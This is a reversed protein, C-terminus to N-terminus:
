AAVQGDQHVRGPGSKHRSETEYQDNEFRVRQDVRHGPASTRVTALLGNAQPKDQRYQGDPPCGTVAVHTNQKIVAGNQGTITTPIELNQSCLDGLAALASHPGEPLVTEFTSVPADPLTNFTSSTVGNKIDTQGDLVLTVGEGQLLFQVDPFESSGHSVLYAPGTLPSNLVPTHATAIGIVSGEPCTAPNANFM